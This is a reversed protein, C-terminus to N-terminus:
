INCRAVMFRRRIRVTFVRVVDVALVHLLLQRFSAVSMSM